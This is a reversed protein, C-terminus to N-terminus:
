SKSGRSGVLLRSYTTSINPYRIPTKTAAMIMLSTLRSYGMYIYMYMHIIYICTCVPYMYMNM